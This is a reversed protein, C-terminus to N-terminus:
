RPGSTAALPLIVTRGTHVTVLTDAALADFRLRVRPTSAPVTVRYDATSAARNRVRLGAPLVVLEEGAAGTVTAAARAGSDATLRLTGSAPRADFTITFPGPEPTFSVVL